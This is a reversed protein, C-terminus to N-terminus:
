KFWQHLQGQYVTGHLTLSGDGLRQPQAPGSLPNTSQHLLTSLYYQNADHIAYDLTQGNQLDQYIYDSWAANLLSDEVSTQWGLFAQDDGVGPNPLIGFGSCLDYEFASNCTDLFVFNYPPQNLSKNAVAEAVGNQPPQAPASNHSGYIHYDNGFNDVINDTAGFWIRESGSTDDLGHAYTFFDCFSPIISLTAPKSDSPGLTPTINASLYQGHVFSAAQAGDNTQNNNGNGSGGGDYGKNYTPGSINGNYTNGNSDNVIMQIPVSSGDTFHTSDFYVTLSASTQSTGLAVNSGAAPHNPFTTDYYDKVDTGGVLLQAHSVYGSIAPTTASASCNTGSFFRPHAPDWNATDVTSHAQLTATTSRVFASVSPEASAQKGGHVSYAVNNVVDSTMEGIGMNVTVFGTNPDVPIQMLKNTTVPPSPSTLIATRAGTPDFLSATAKASLVSPGFTPDSVWTYPNVNTQVLVNVSAPYVPKGGVHSSPDCNFYGILATKTDGTIEGNIAM